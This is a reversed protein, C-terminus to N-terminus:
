QRPLLAYVYIDPRSLDALPMPNRINFVVREPDLVPYFFTFLNGNAVVPMDDPHTVIVYLTSDPSFDPQRAQLDYIVQRARDSKYKLRQEDYFRVNTQFYAFTM